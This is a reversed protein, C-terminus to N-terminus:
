GAVLLKGFCDIVYGAGAVLLLIGIIKPIFDSKIALYGLPFLWLGWFLAAINVGNNFLNLLIIVQSHLIDTNLVQLHNTNSLLQLVTLTNSQNLMAIPVPILALVVMLIAKNRNVGRFLEYLFLALFIHLIQGVLDSVIAIRFLNESTLINNITTIVDSVIVSTRFYQAFGASVAVLLYLLGAFRATKKITNL